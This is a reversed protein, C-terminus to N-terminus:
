GIFAGALAGGAGAAVLNDSGGFCNCTDYCTSGCSGQGAVDPLNPKQAEFNKIVIESMQEKEKDSLDAM